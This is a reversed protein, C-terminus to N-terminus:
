VPAYHWSQLFSRIVRRPINRSEVVDNYFKLGGIIACPKKGKTWKPKEERACFHTAGNLIEFIVETSSEGEFGEKAEFMDSDYTFLTAKGARKFNHDLNFVQECVYDLTQNVSDEVYFSKAFEAAENRNGKKWCKLSLATERPEKHRHRALNSICHAVALFESANTTTSMCYIASGVVQMDTLTRLKTM